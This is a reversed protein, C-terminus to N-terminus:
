KWNRRSSQRIKKPHVYKLHVGTIEKKIKIPQRNPQLSVNIRDPQTQAITRNRTIIQQQPQLVTSSNNRRVRRVKRLSMTRTRKMFPMRKRWELLNQWFIKSTFQRAVSTKHILSYEFKSMWESM